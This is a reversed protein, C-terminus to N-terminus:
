IENSFIGASTFLTRAIKSVRQGEQRAGDTKQGLRPAQGSGGHSPHREFWQRSRGDIELAAPDASQLPAEM